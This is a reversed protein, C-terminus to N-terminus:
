HVPERAGDRGLHRATRRCDLEVARSRESAVIRLWVATGLRRDLDACGAPRTRPPVCRRGEACPGLDNMSELRVANMAPLLLTPTDVVSVRHGALCCSHGM